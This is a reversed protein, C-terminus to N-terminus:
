GGEGGTVTQTKKMTKMVVMIPLGTVTSYLVSPRTAIAVLTEACDLGLAGPFKRM